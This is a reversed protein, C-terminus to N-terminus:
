CEVAFLLRRHAPIICFFRVLPSRSAHSTFFSFFLRRFVAVFEVILYECIYIFAQMSPYFYHNEIQNIYHENQGISLSLDRASIGYEIRLEALRDGFQNFELFSMSYDDKM